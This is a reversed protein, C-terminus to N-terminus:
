REAVTDYEDFLGRENVVLVGMDRQLELESVRYDVLAATVANQASLLDAQAENIDRVTVGQRGLEQFATTRAVRRQATRVSAVQIVYSQRQQSLGRLGSRIQQKIQDELAQASRVSQELAIYSARYQNRQSTREWPLDLDVGVSYFGTNFNPTVDSGTANAGGGVSANGVIDLGAQLADAAVVVSRQADYVVGHAERLDLRNELAIRVADEVELEYPGVNERGPVLLEVPSEASPVDAIDPIDTGTDEQAALRSAMNNRLVLLEDRDLEILSDTPLGLRIKFSDLADEFRQTSAIWSDRARLEAQRAQDLQELTTRDESALAATQRSSLVQNRYNDETNQLQDLQQLVQYYQSVIGVAFDRKFDEFGWLAYILDREAQTLPETVIHRGSGRLLPISASFDMAIGIASAGDSSLLQALDLVLNAALSAGNELQRSVGFRGGTEFRTTGSGQDTSLLADLMGTYTNRFQDIQLDLNLGSRFVAEKAQQYERSNAAAIQLAELLTMRVPGVEDWDVVVGDIEDTRPPMGEEPWHEIEELYDSGFSALGSTQLDQLGLLKRRLTEAPRDITFPERRGIAEEQANGVLDYAVKDAEMRYDAPACGWVAAVYGAFLGAGVSRGIGGRLTWKRENRPSM